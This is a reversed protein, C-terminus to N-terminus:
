AVPVVQAGADQGASVDVSVSAPVQPPPAHTCVVVCLQPLYMHSPAVAHRVVQAPSPSQEFPFKQAPSGTPEHVPLSATPAAHVALSWHMFLLQRSPTQQPWDDQGDHVTQAGTVPAQAGTAAPVVGTGAVNQVSWPAGLQPVSPVHLPAPPQRM